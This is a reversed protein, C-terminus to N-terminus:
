LRNARLEKLSYHTGRWDIGDNCITKLTARWIIYLFFLTTVPLAFAHWRKVGPFSANDLYLVAMTLVCGVNLWRVAGITVVVAVLPWVFVLLQAITAAILRALSYELGAFSNKELGRVLEPVSSYWEVKILDDGLVLDQRYGSKKVLKGLMMDDDPRMRLPEHGGIKRYADARVLNFAGIGIHRSSKPDRAKWPKAYFGFFLSFAGGFMNLVTGPMDLHPVIALHDLRETVLYQAARGIVTAEMHIDADTFLLLEGTAHGAGTQQAHNKGLWGKPLERIHVVKIGAMRDLIVGTEDDSRDEVVIFEINAYDQRLLSQLAAEIKRAENRAAVIVSVRPPRPERRAAPLDRLKKLTRTGIAFEITVAILGLLTFIALYIM